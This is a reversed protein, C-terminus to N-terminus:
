ENILENWNRGKRPYYVCATMPVGKAYEKKLQSVTRSRGNPKDTWCFRRLMKCKVARM